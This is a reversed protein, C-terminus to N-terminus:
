IVPKTIDVRSPLLQVNRGNAYVPEIDSTPSVAIWTQGCEGCAIRYSGEVFSIAAHDCALPSRGM